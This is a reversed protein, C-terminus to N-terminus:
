HYKKCHHYVQMHHTFEAGCVSCTFKKQDVCKQIHEKFTYPNSCKYECKEYKLTKAKHLFSHKNLNFKKGFTKGCVKCTFGSTISGCHHVQHRQSKRKRQEHEKCGTTFSSVEQEAVDTKTKTKSKFETDQSGEKCCLSLLHTKGTITEKSGSTRTCRPPDTNVTSM